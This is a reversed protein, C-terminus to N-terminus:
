RKCRRHYRRWLWEKVKFWRGKIMPFDQELRLQRCKKGDPCDLEDPCHFMRDSAYCSPRLTKILIEREEKDM